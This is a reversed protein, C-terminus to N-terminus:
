PGYAGVVHGVSGDSAADHDDAGARDAARHAGPEELRAGVHGEDRAARVGVAIAASPSVSTSGSRTTVSGTGTTVVPRPRRRDVTRVSTTSATFVWSM